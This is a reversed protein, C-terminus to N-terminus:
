KWEETDEVIIIKNHAIMYSEVASFIEDYEANLLALYVKLKEIKIETEAIERKLIPIMALNHEFIMINKISETNDGNSTNIM